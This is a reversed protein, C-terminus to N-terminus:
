QKFLKEFQLKKIMTKNIHKDTMENNYRIFKKLHYSKFSFDKYVSAIRILLNYGM